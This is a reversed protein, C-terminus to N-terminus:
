AEKRIYKDGPLSEILGDVELMFLIENVEQISKGVRIAIEDSTQEISGIEEYVEKCKGDISLDSYMKEIELVGTIDKVSMVLNAGEQILLNTGSSRKQDINGPICFIEKGQKIGYRATITSGSRQRAEVVLIGDSLGSIIRNRAPFRSMIINEEPQWESVVAGGNELIKEVLIKNEPPFIHNIGSAIVAITKGENEMSNIHSITDIGRALGSIICIGLKSLNRAFREAQYKGYESPDRSGIIAISPKQLLEVNGEVYLEKPHNKIKLLKSPYM